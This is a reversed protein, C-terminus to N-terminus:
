TATLENSEILQRTELEKNHKILINPQEDCAWGERVAFDWRNPMLDSAQVMAM